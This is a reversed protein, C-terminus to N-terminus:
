AVLGRVLNEFEAMSWASAIWEDHRKLNEAMRRSERANHEALQANYQERLIALAHDKKEPWLANAHKSNARKDPFARKYERNFFERADHETPEAPTSEWSYSYRPEETRGGRSCMWQAYQIITDFQEPMSKNSGWCIAEHFLHHWQNLTEHGLISRMGAWARYFPICDPNDNAQPQFSECGALYQEAKTM